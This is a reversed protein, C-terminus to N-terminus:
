KVKCQANENTWLALVLGGTSATKAIHFSSNTWLRVSDKFFLKLNTSVISGLSVSRLSFRWSPVMRRISRIKTLEYVPLLHIFLSYPFHVQSDLVRMNYGDNSNVDQSLGTDMRVPQSFSVIGQAHRHHSHDLMEQSEEEVRMEM